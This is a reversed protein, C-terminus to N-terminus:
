FKEMLFFNGQDILNYHRNQLNSLLREATGAYQMKFQVKDTGMAQVVIDKILPMARLERETRVWQGLGKFDYLVMVEEVQTSEAVSQQQLRKGIKATVQRMADNFVDNSKPVYVAFNDGSYSTAQVNLGENELVADLVYADDANNLRMIKELAVGDAQLAQTADVLGNGEANVLTSDISNNWINRWPNGEEWLQPVANATSRFVPVVVIKSSTQVLLPIGKEQMYQKLLGENVGIRLEAVYRVDSVKESLISVEKVFNVLQTDSLNALQSFGSDTTIRKALEKFAARNAEVMAKERARSANVDTVDIKVEVAFRSDAARLETACLGLFVLLFALFRM